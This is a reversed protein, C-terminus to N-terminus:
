SYFIIKLYTFIIKILMKRRIDITEKTWGRDDIKQYHKETNMLPDWVKKPYAKKKEKFSGNGFSSNDIGETLVFNGLSWIYELQEDSDLAYFAKWNKENITQPLVHEVTSCNIKDTPIITKYRIFFLFMNVLSNKGKFTEPNKLSELEIKDISLNTTKKLTKLEDIAKEISNIFKKPKDDNQEISAAISPLETEIVNSARDGLNIAFM